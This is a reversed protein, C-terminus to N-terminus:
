FGRARLVNQLSGTAAAPVRISARELVEATLGSVSTPSILGARHLANMERRDRAPGRYADAHIAVTPREAAIAESIMSLSDATVCVVDCDFADDNSALGADAFRTVRARDAFRDLAAELASFPAPATRRSDFIRLHWTPRESLIAACRAGLATMDTQAYRHHKTDGGVLLAISRVEGRELPRAAPRARNAVTSPRPAVAVSRAASPLPSLLLTFGVVPFKPFGYYINRAGYRRAAAINAAATAPGTSVVVEAAAPWDALSQPQLPAAMRSPDLRTNRALWRAPDTKAAALRALRRSRPRVEGIALWQAESPALRKLANVIGDSARDHGAVGDSLVLIRRM